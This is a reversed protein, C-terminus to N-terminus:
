ARVKLVKIAEFNKVGGGVRKTTYFTVFPKNTYPDRLVRIGVRDVIQYGQRFDGYIISDTNAGVAGPLSDFMRVPRGLLLSPVGAQLGPQWIYANTTNEKLKRIVGIMLRNIGWTANGQYAEKLLDQTSILDDGVIANNAATEQRQVLGFGNGAAYALIGKPRAVGDGRVFADSEDRAFKSSVKGALWAEVNVAADDLLKQTAKPNAYLEHVPIKIKNIKPTDTNPRAQTEGVWGSEVEDLDELIELADSSITQQSALERMPNSEFIKEVIESSMEPTVLFGGDVDSDVSMAKCQAQFLDHDIDKGKRLYGDLAQMYKAKREDQESAVPLGQGPRQGKALEEMKKELSQMEAEIKSLKEEKDISAFGKKEIEQLRADNVAKFQEFAKKLEELLKELEM